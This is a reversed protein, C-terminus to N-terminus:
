MAIASRTWGRSRAGFWAPSSRCGCRAWLISMKARQAWRAAGADGLQARLGADRTLRRLALTLSHEEDRPDISIGIPAEVSDFGRPQWTQPDLLPGCAHELWNRSVKVDDDTCALVTGNAAAIGTNM